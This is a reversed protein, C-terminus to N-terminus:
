GYNNCPWWGWHIGDICDCKFDLYKYIYSLKLVAIADIGVLYPLFQASPGHGLLEESVKEAMYVLLDASHLPDTVSSNPLVVFSLFSM